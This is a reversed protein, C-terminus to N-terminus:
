ASLSTAKVFAAGQVLSWDCYQHLILRVQADAANTYPDVFVSFGGWKGMYVRSFDGFIFDGSTGASATAGNSWYTRYGHTTYNLYDGM